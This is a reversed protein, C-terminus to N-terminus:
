ERRIEYSYTYMDQECYVKSQKSELNFGIAVLDNVLKQNQEYYTQPLQIRLLNIKKYPFKSYYDIIETIALKTCEPPLSILQIMAANLFAEHSPQVVIAGVMLSHQKLAFFDKYYSYLCQRIIASNDYERYDTGWVYNLNGTISTPERAVTRLFAALDRIENEAVLSLTYQNLIVSANVQYPNANVKEDDKWEIANIYTLTGLVTSLDSFLTRELVDPYQEKLVSLIDKVTRAGDCLSLIQFSTQNLMSYNSDGNNTLVSYYGNNEKRFYPIEMKLPKTNSFSEVNKFSTIAINM